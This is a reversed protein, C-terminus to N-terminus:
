HLTIPASNRAYRAYNPPPSTTLYRTISKKIWRFADFKYSFLLTSLMLQRFPNQFTLGDGTKKPCIEIGTKKTEAKSTELHYVRKKRAINQCVQVNKIADFTGPLRNSIFLM